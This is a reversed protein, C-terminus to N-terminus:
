DGSERKVVNVTFDGTANLETPLVKGLLGAFAKMDEQAMKRMYGKLGDKGEGDQGEEEAALMIADKIAATVKNVSGRKRGKGANGRNKEESM